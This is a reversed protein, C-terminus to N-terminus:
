IFNQPLKIRCMVSRYQPCPLPIYWSSNCHHWNSRDAWCNQTAKLILYLFGNLFIQIQAHNYRKTWDIVHLIMYSLHNLSGSACHSILHLLDQRKQRSDLSALALWSLSQYWFQYGCLSVTHPALPLPTRDNIFSMTIWQSLVIFNNNRLIHFKHLFLMSLWIVHLWKSIFKNTIQNLQGIWHNM